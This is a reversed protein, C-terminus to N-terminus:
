VRMELFIFAFAYFSHMFSCAFLMDLSNFGNSLTTSLPSNVEVMQSDQMSEAFWSSSLLTRIVFSESISRSYRGVDEIKVVKENRNSSSFMQYSHCSELRRGESYAWLVCDLSILYANWEAYKHPMLIIWKIHLSRDFNAIQETNLVVFTQIIYVLIKAVSPFENHINISIHSQLASLLLRDSLAVM